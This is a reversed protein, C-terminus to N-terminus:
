WVWISAGFTMGGGFSVACILDGRKIRGEEEAEYLAMPISAASTNGYKHINVYFKEMPIKAMSAATEIIRLNAQHPFIMDLDDVTLGQGADELANNIATRVAKVAFKFVDSGHMEIRSGMESGGPESTRTMSGSDYLRLLGKGRGDAGLFQGVLGRDEGTPGVIAAGSADGFLVCTARDGYDIFRTITEAGIVLAKEYVGARMFSTAVSMGYVWGTCAANLDMAPCQGGIGLADQVECAVNPCVNDPSCTCCIIVDIEEAATGSRELAQLSAKIAMDATAKGDEQKRRERIGTRSVIWEDNTDVLKELDANTIVQEPAFMGVGLIGYGHTKVSM